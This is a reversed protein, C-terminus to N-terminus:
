ISENTGIIMIHRIDVLIDNKTDIFNALTKYTDSTQRHRSLIKQKQSNNNCTHNLWNMISQNKLIFIDQKLNSFDPFIIKIERETPYHINRGVLWDYEKSISNNPPIVQSLLFYGNSKLCRYIESFALVPDDLYHLVNRMYILKFSSDEFPLDHADGIIPTVGPHNINSIMEKSIDIGTLPGYKEFVKEAIAGTGIGVELISNFKNNPIMDLFADIFNKDKVWNTKDYQSARKAWYRKSYGKM